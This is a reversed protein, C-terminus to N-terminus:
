ARADKRQASPQNPDENSPASKPQLMRRLDETILQSLLTVGQELYPKTIMPQIIQAKLPFALIALYAVSCALWGRALGFAAGGVSDLWGLRAKDLTRRLLRSVVFAVILLALYIALFSTLNAMLDSEFAPRVLRALRPYQTAAVVIGGLAAATTLTSRLLGRAFGILTSLAIIFLIGIDTATM